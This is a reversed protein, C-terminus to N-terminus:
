YIQATQDQTIQFCLVSVLRFELFKITKKCIIINRANYFEEM